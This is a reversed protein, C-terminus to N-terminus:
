GVRYDVLVHGAMTKVASEAVRVAEIDTNSRTIEVTGTGPRGPLHDQEVKFVSGHFLKYNGLYAGMCGVASGTFPVEMGSNPALLRGFANANQSFGELCFLYVADVGVRELLPRLLSRNCRLKKLIAMGRVPAMLFPGGTSIVQIPM